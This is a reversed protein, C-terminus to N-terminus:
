VDVQIEISAFEKEKLKVDQGGKIQRLIFDDKKGDQILRNIYTVVKTARKVLQIEFESEYFLPNILDCRINM